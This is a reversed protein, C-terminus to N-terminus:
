LRGPRLLGAALVLLSGFLTNWAGSQLDGLDVVERARLVWVVTTAALIFGGLQLIGKARVMGVVALLVGLALPVTLSTIVTASDRTVGTFLDSLPLTNGPRDEYWPRFAGLGVVFVGGLCLLWSILARM